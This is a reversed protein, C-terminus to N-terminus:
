FLVASLGRNSKRFIVKRLAQMPTAGLDLAAEYLSPNMQKLRPLISLVVYPVCFFYHTSLSSDYVGPQYGPQCFPSVVFCGYYDGSESDPYQESVVGYEPDQPPSQFGSPLWVAWFRRRRHPSSLLPLRISCRSLCRITSGARFCRSTFNRPFVQGTASCERRRLRFIIIILIPAYLIALLLWVYLKAFLHKM